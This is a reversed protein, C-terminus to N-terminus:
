AGGSVVGGHGTICSLSEFCFATQSRHFSICLLVVAVNRGSVTSSSSASAYIRGIRLSRECNSLAVPFIRIVSCLPSASANENRAIEQKLVPIEGRPSNLPVSLVDCKEVFLLQPTGFHTHLGHYSVCLLEVDAATLIERM